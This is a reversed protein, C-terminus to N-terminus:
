ASLLLSVPSMRLVFHPIKIILTLSSIQIVIEHYMSGSYISWLWYTLLRRSSCCVYSQHVFCQNRLQANRTSSHLLDPPSSHSPLWRFSWFLPVSTSYLFLCYGKNRVLAFVKLMMVMMMMMMTNMM